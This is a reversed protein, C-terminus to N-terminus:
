GNNEEKTNNINKDGNTFKEIVTAGFGGAVLLCVSDFMAIPLEYITFIDIYCFIVINVSFFITLIRKSSVEKSKSLLKQIWDKM